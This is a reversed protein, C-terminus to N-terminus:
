LYSSFAKFFSFHVLGLEFKRLPTLLILSLSTIPTHHTCVCWVELIYHPKKADFDGSPNTGPAPVPARPRRAHAGGFAPSSQQLLSAASRLPNGWVQHLFCTVNVWSHVICWCKYWIIKFSIYDWDLAFQFGTQYRYPNTPWIIDNKPQAILM